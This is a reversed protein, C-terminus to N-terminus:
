DANLNAGSEHIQFPPSAGGASPGERRRPHSVTPHCVHEPEDAHETGTSCVHLVRVAGPATPSSRREFGAAADGYGGGGAQQEGHPAGDGPAGGLSVPSFSGREKECCM